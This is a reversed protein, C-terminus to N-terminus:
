NKTSPQPIVLTFHSTFHRMTLVLDASPTFLSETQGQQKTFKQAAQGQWAPATPKATCQSVCLLSIGSHTSLYKWYIGKVISKLLNCQTRLWIHCQKWIHVWFGKQKCWTNKLVPSREKLLVWFRMEQGESPM